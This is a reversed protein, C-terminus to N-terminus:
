VATITIHRAPRGAYRPDRQHCAQERSGRLEHRPGGRLDARDHSKQRVDLAVLGSTGEGRLRRYSLIRAAKTPSSIGEGTELSTSSCAGSASAGNVSRALTSRRGM